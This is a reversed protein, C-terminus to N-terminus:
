PNIYRNFTETNAKYVIYNPIYLNLSIIYEQHISWKIIMFHGEEGGTISGTKFDIIDLIPM